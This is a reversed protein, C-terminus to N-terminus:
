RLREAVGVPAAENPVSERYRQAAEENKQMIMLREYLPEPVEVSKGRPVRYQRGNVGVVVHKQEGGMARPLFITHKVQWPDVEVAKATTKTDAM